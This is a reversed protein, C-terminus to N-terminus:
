HLTQDQRAKARARLVGRFMLFYLAGSLLGAVLMGIRLKAAGHWIMLVIAVSPLALAAVVFVLAVAALAGGGFRNLWGRKATGGLARVWQNGRGVRVEADDDAEGLHAM